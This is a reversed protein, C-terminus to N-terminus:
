NPAEHSRVPCSLHGTRGNPVEQLGRPIVAVAPTGGGTTLLGPTSPSQSKGPLAPDSYLPTSVAASSTPGQLTRRAQVEAPTGESRSTDERASCLFSCELPPTAASQTFPAAARDGVGPTTARPHRRLDPHLHALRPPLPTTGRRARGWSRVRHPCM